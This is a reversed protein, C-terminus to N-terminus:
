PSGTLTIFDCSGSPTSYHCRRSIQGPSDDIDLPKLTTTLECILARLECIVSLCAQGHWEAM